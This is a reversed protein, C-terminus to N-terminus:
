KRNLVVRSLKFWGVCEICGSHTESGDEGTENGGDGGNLGTDNAGPDRRGSGGGLHGASSHV